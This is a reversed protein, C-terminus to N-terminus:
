IHENKIYVHFPHDHLIYRICKIHATTINQDIMRQVLAHLTNPGCIRWFCQISIAAAITNKETGGSKIAQIEM